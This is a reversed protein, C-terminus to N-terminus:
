SASKHGALAPWLRTAQKKMVSLGVPVAQGAVFSPMGTNGHQLAYITVATTGAAALMMITAPIAKRETIRSAAIM